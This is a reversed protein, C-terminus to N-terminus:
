EGQAEQSLNYTEELIEQEFGYDLLAQETYQIGAERLAGRIKCVTKNREGHEYVCNNKKMYNTIFQHLDCDTRANTPFHYTNKVFHEKKYEERWRLQVMNKDDCLLEQLKGTDHRIIRPRRTLRAPDNCAKDAHTLDLKKALHEWVYKYEDVSTPIDSKEPDLAVMIHISKKGSFVARYVVGNAQLKQLKEKQWALSEETSKGPIDDIEFLFRQLHVNNQTRITKHGETPQSSKFDNICEFEGVPSESYLDFPRKEAKLNDTPDADLFSLDLMEALKNYAELYSYRQVSYTPCLHNLIDDKSTLIEYQDKGNDKVHNNAILDTIIANFEKQSFSRKRKSTYVRCNATKIMIPPYEDKISEVYGMFSDRFGGTMKRTNLLDMDLTTVMNERIFTSESFTKKNDNKKPIKTIQYYYFYAMLINKFLLRKEEPTVKEYNLFDQYNDTNKKPIPCEAFPLFSIRRDVNTKLRHNSAGVICTKVDHSIFDKGKREYRITNQEILNKLLDDALDFDNSWENIISLGDIFDNTSHFGQGFLGKSTTELTPFGLEAVTEKIAKVRFTKGTHGEASYFLMMTPEIDFHVDPFVTNSLHKLFADFKVLNNDFEGITSPCLYWAIARLVDTKTPRPMLEFKAFAENKKEEAMEKIFVPLRADMSNKILTLLKSDTVLRDLRIQDNQSKKGNTDYIPHKHIWETIFKRTDDINHERTATVPLLRDVVYDCVETYKIPSKQM